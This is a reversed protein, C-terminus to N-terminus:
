LDQSVCPFLRLSLLFQRGVLSTKQPVVGTCGDAPGLCKTAPFRAQVTEDVKFTAVQPPIAIKNFQDKSHDKWACQPLDESFSIHMAKCYTSRCAPIAINDHDITEVVHSSLVARRLVVDSGLWGNAGSVKQGYIDFSVWYGIGLVAVTSAHSRVGTGLFPKRSLIKTFERLRRGFM